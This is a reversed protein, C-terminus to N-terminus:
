RDEKSRQDSKKKEQAQTIKQYFEDNFTDFRTSFVPRQGRRFVVIQGVPLYLIEDLPVNLKLSLSRATEYNNGGFFVYSDCNDIIEISGAESYMRKLQSESQLLIGLFAIGKARCISLKEPMESVKAGTAFDDFIIDVPIPLTGTEAEDAITFLESIAQSVFINALGHLAKKVPSTTIFLISKESAFKNFDVSPKTRMSNRISTTYARLTPNMSVYISKATKPAAEKFTRWCTIAYCDPAAKEIKRFMPDLSTTIGCGSEEIKLSFHLDLVDAFTPKDKTMLTVAIEAALLQESSDDWFPDATSHEKRENAMIISHALDSIDEESRIYTLPDNCCNGREPNSYDLDYTNFGAAKYLHIYKDPIDRKTLIVIKNNPKKVKLPEMLAPEVFSVTKGSGSGGVILVNRNLGTLKPDGNYICNNGLIMRETIM